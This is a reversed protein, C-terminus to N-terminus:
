TERTGRERKSRKGLERNEQTRNSHSTQSALDLWFMRTAQWFQEFYLLWLFYKSWFTYNNWLKFNFDWTEIAPHPQSPPELTQLPSVAEAERPTVRAQSPSQGPSALITPPSPWGGAARTRHLWATLGLQRWSVLHGAAAAAAGDLQQQNITKAPPVPLKDAWALGLRWEGTLRAPAEDHDDDGQEGQGHLRRHLCLSELPLRPGGQGNVLGHSVVTCVRVAATLQQLCSCLAKQPQACCGLFLFTGLAGAM